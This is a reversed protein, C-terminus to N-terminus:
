GPFDPCLNRVRPIAATRGIDAELYGYLLAQLVGGAGTLFFTNPNEPNRCECILRHPGRLFPQSQEKLINLGETKNGERMLLLASMASSMMPGYDLVRDAYYRVNACVTEAAAPYQLPYFILILDAQKIGEGRYNAHEPIVGTAPDPELLFLKEHVDRWESPVPENIRCACSIALELAKRVGYNTLMNDDVLTHQVEEVAENPGVVQRIHFLGDAEKTARSCFFEAIGSLIPWTVRHLFADEKNEQYADWAALAVWINLHVEKIYGPPTRCRGEADAQWPYWVGRYGTGAANERAPAITQSRWEPITKALEPWLLLAARFLWLDADWFQRGGWAAGWVGLAGTVCPFESLSGLLFHQWIILNRMFEPGGDAFLLADGWLKRWRAANETLTETEPQVLLAQAIDAANRKEPYASDPFSLAHSLQLEAEPGSIEADIRNRSAAVAAKGGSLRWALAQGIPTAEENGRYDGVICNTGCEAFNMRLFPRANDDRLGFKLRVSERGPNHIRLSLRAAMPQQRPLLLRIDIRLSKGPAYEWHDSLMAEGTRLDLIQTADHIGNKWAYMVDGATLDVHNWAPLPVIQRGDYGLRSFTSLSPQNWDAVILRDIATGVLGNGLVVRHYESLEENTLKLQWFSDDQWHITTM